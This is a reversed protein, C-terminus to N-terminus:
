HVVLAVLYSLSSWIQLQLLVKLADPISRLHSSRLSSNWVWTSSFLAEAKPIFADPQLWPEEIFSPHGLSLWKLERPRQKMKLWFISATCSLLLFGWVLLNFFPCFVQVSMEEFFIYLLDIFMHGSAWCCYNKSSHLEFSIDGWM